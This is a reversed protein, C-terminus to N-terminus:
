LQKFTGTTGEEVNRYSKRSNDLQAKLEGVATILDPIVKADAVEGIAKNFEGVQEAYGGGLPTKTALVMSRRQIRRLANEFAELKKIATDVAERDHQLAGAESAAQVSRAAARITSVGGTMIGMFPGGSQAYYRELAYAQASEQASSEGTM